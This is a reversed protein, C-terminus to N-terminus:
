RIRSRRFHPKAEIDYATVTLRDPTVEVTMFGPGDFVYDTTSDDTAVSEEQRESGGNASAHLPEGPRDLVQQFRDNASLYLDVKFPLIRPLLEALTRDLTYQTRTLSRVAYHGAIVRWVPSGPAEFAKEAFALQADPAELLEITDFFVVRVLVRGDV